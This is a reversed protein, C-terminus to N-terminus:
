LRRQYGNRRLVADLSMAVPYPVEFGWGNGYRSVRPPGPLDGSAGAAVAAEEADDEATFMFMVPAVRRTPLQNGAVLQYSRIREGLMRAVGASFRSEMSAMRERDRPSLAFRGPMPTVDVDDEEDDDEDWEVEGGGTMRLHTGRLDVGSFDAGRLDAGEFTAGRIFAGRFRANRLDAGGFEADRLNASEFNADQLNADLFIAQVGDVGSLDAGAMSSGEFSTGAIMSGALRVGPLDLGSFDQGSLDERQQVAQSLERAAQEAAQPSARWGEPAEDPDEDESEDDWAEQLNAPLADLGAALKAQERRGKKTGLEARKAKRRALEEPRSLQKPKSALAAKAQRTLYEVTIAISDLLAKYSGTGMMDTLRGQSQLLMSATSILASAVVQPDQAKQLGQKALAVIKDKWAGAQETQPGAASAKSKLQALGKLIADLELVEGSAAKELAQTFAKQIAQEAQKAQAENQEALRRIVAMSM